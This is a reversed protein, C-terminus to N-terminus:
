YGGPVPLHNLLRGVITSELHNEIRSRLVTPGLVQALTLLCEEAAAVALPQDTSVAWALVPLLFDLNRKFDSKQQGECLAKITYCALFFDLFLLLILIFKVM